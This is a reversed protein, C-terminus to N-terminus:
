AKLQGFHDSPISTPADLRFLFDIFICIKLEFCSTPRAAAVSAAFIM